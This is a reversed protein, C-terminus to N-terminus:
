FDTHNVHRKFLLNKSDMVLNFRIIDSILKFTESEKSLIIEKSIYIMDDFMNCILNNYREILFETEPFITLVEEKTHPMISPSKYEEIKSYFNMLINYIKKSSFVMKIDENNEKM